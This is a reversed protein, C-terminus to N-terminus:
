TREEKHRQQALNGGSNGGSIGVSSDSRGFRDPSSKALFRSKYFNLIIPNIMLM